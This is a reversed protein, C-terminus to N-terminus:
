VDNAKDKIETVSKWKIVKSAYFPKLNTEVEKIIDDMKKNTEDNEGMESISNLLYLIDPNNKILEFDPRGLVDTMDRIAHPLWNIIYNFEFFCREIEESFYVKAKSAMKQFAKIDDIDRDIVYARYMCACQSNTWNENKYYKKISEPYCVVEPFRVRKVLDRMKYFQEMIERALEIKPAEIVQERWTKLGKYAIFCGWFTLGLEFIKVIGDALDM